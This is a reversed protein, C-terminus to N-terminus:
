DSWLGSSQVSPLETDWARPVFVIWALLATGDQLTWDFSYIDPAGQNHTDLQAQSEPARSM